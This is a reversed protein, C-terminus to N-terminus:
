GEGRREAGTKIFSPEGGETAYDVKVLCLGRAPASPGAASRDRAALVRRLREAAEAKGVSEDPAIWRFTGVMARVMGRLFGNAKVRTKVLGGDRFCVCEHIRRVSSRTSGGTKQFSAFDFEGVLEACMASWVQASLPKGWNWVYRARLASPEPRNLITYEYTRSLADFRAHFEDPVIEASRVSIDSPLAGNLARQLGAPPIHVPSRFNATQGSAHVGADTRGAGVIRVKVKM